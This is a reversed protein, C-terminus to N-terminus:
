STHHCGRAASVCLLVAASLLPHPKVAEERGVWCVHTCARAACVCVCVHMCVHVLGWNGPGASQEQWAGQGGGLWTTLVSSLRGPLEKGIWGPRCGLPICCISGMLHWSCYGEGDETLQHGRQQMPTCLFPSPLLFTTRLAPICKYSHRGSAAWMEVWLGVKLLPQSCGCSRGGKPQCAPSVRLLGLSPRGWAPMTPCLPRQVNETLCHLQQATEACKPSM